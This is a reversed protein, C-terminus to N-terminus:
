ALSEKMKGRYHNITSQIIGAIMETPAQGDSLVVLLSALTHPILERRVIRIRKTPLNYVLPPNYMLSSGNKKFVGIVEVWPLNGIFLRNVYARTTVVSNYEPYARPVLSWYEGDVKEPQMVPALAGIACYHGNSDPGYSGYARQSPDTGIINPLQDHWRQMIELLDVSPEVFTTISM